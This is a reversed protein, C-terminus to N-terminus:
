PDIDKRSRHEFRVMIVAAVVGFLPLFVPWFLGVVCAGPIAGPHHPVGDRQSRANEYVLLAMALGIGCSVYYLVGLAQAATPMM